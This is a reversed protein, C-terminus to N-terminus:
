NEGEQFTQTVKWYDNVCFRWNLIVARYNALYIQKSYDLATVYNFCIADPQDCFKADHVQQIIQHKTAM